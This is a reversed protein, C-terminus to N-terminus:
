RSIIWRKWQDKQLWDIPFWVIVLFCNLFNPTFRSKLIYFRMFNGTRQKYLVWEDSIDIESNLGFCSTIAIDAPQVNVLKLGLSVLHQVLDHKRSQNGFLIKWFWTGHSIYFRYVKWLLFLPFLDVFLLAFDKSLNWLRQQAQTPENTQM